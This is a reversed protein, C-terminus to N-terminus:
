SNCSAGSVVQNCFPLDSCSLNNLRKKSGSSLIYGPLRCLRSVDKSKNFNLMTFRIHAFTDHHLHGANNWEEKKSALCDLDCASINM